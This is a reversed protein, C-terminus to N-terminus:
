DLSLHLKFGDTYDNCFKNTKHYDINMNIDLHLQINIMSHDVNVHTHNLNDAMPIM